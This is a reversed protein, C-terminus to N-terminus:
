CKEFFLEYLMMTAQILLALVVRFERDNLRFIRQGADKGFEILETLAGIRAM